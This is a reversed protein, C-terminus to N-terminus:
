PSNWAGHIWFSWESLSEFPHHIISRTKCLSNSPAKSCTLQLPKSMWKADEWKQIAWSFHIMTLITILWKCLWVRACGFTLSAFWRGNARYHNAHQCVHGWSRIRRAGLQDLNKNKHWSTEIFMINFLNFFFCVCTVCATSQNKKTPWECTCTCQMMLWRNWPRTVIIEGSNLCLKKNEDM